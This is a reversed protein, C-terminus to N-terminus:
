PYDIPNYAHDRQVPRRGAARIAAVLEDRGVRYSVGAAAVVNEEIMTSGMDNVGFKLSVQAVKLGQTVWSAQISPVNDLYIRSVALTML